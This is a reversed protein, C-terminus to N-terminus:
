ELLEKPFGDQVLKGYKTIFYLMRINGYDNMKVKGKDVSYNEFNSITHISGSYIGLQREKLIDRLTAQM